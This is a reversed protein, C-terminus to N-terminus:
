FHSVIIQLPLIFDENKAKPHKVSESGSFRIKMKRRGKKTITQRCLALARGKKGVPTNNLSM